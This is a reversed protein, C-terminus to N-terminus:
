VHARGIEDFSCFHSRELVKDYNSFRNDEQKVIIGAITIPVGIGAIEFLKSSTLKDFKTQEYLKLTFEELKYDDEAMQPLSYITFSKSAYSDVGFLLLVVILINIFSKRM